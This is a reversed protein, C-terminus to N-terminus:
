GSIAAELLGALTLARGRDSTWAFVQSDRDRVEYCTAGAAIVEFPPKLVLGELSSRESGDVADEVVEWRPTVKFHRALRTVDEASFLRRNGIRQEPEPLKGSTLLHVIQHPKRDLIRAVDGLFFHKEM